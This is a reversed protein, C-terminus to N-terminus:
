PVVLQLRQALEPNNPKRFRQIAHNADVIEQAALEKTRRHIRDNKIAHFRLWADYFERLLELETNTGSECVAYDRGAKVQISM